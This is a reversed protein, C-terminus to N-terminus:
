EEEKTEPKAVEGTVSRDVAREWAEISARCTLESGGLYESPAIPAVSLDPGVVEALAEQIPIARERALAAAEYVLDHARNRGVERALSMMLAEAMIAGNDAGLNSLMAAEDVTLGEVLECGVALASASAFLVQPFVQWEIQWEGASREHGAEVARLLAPALATATVAFGIIAESRVPNRKQPMTSSAGGHHASGEAVEGIETRSLDVVERALRACTEAAAAAIWGIEALRDRSAHWPVDTGTLGLAAALAARVAPAESGSAASTGAAGHLSIALVRPRADRLRDLHRALEDLFTALKAGLTTPVAQQAHTRGAMPTRSYRVVRERLADGLRLILGDLRGLAARTQLVLGTDMIDQTTAGFHVRDDAGEPLARVLAEVLPLIPYGVVRAEHWLREEDLDLSSAATHVAAADTPEILGCLAQADALAVEVEIWRAIAEQRGFIAAMERDGFLQALLSSPQTPGGASERHDMMDVM